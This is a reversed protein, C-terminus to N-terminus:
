DYTGGVQEYPGERGLPESVPVFRVQHTTGLSLVAMVLAGVLGYIGWATHIPEWFWVGSALGGCGAAVCARTLPQELRRSNATLLASYLSAALLAPAAGFVYGVPIAFLLYAALFDVLNFPVGRWYEFYDVTLLILSATPPGCLTVLTIVRVQWPLKKLWSDARRRGAPLNWIARTDTELGDLDRPPVPRM